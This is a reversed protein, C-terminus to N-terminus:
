KRGGGSKSAPSAAKASDLTSLYYSVATIDDESLDTVTSRMASDPDNARAGSKFDLLQKYLYDVNQTALKPYNLIAPTKADDGHCASCARDDFVGKGKTALASSGKINPEVDEGGAM